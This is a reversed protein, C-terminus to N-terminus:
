PAIRFLLDTGAALDLRVGEQGEWALVAAREEEPLAALHILVHSVGWRRLRVLSEGEPVPHCCIRRLGAYRPAVYGSYGNVLPKWHLTGAYLYGLETQQDGFPLELVARVDGRGALSHYIAPLEAEGPIPFWRLPRPALEVLLVATAALAAAKRLGAPETRRLWADLTRAALWALPFSVFPYFRAPVRMGSLGPVFTMLPLYVILHALLGCALGSFLVGREWPDVAALDFGWNGGWLRRLGLAALGTLLLCGAIRYLGPSGLDKLHGTFAAWTATEGLAYGLVALATLLGLGHRQRNSLPTLPAQRLRRWGSWAGALALATPLFGAFLANERRRWGATWPGAYLNLDAPTVFSVLSVGYAQMERESRALRRTGSAILHPLAVAFLMVMALAGAALLATLSRRSRQRWLDPARNLLLVLLPFQAMFALYIGGTVHLAYFVLFLGARRWGPRALFRDFSWVLLPVWQMVLVQLHDLQDWRFSSFAFACGGFFAAAVGLGCRRLVYWTNFGCLVYTGVFFLNYLAVPNPIFRTLPAALLALGLLHDTTITTWREPFFFPANWFDPMGLRLQHLGWKIMYLSFLTDDARPTLHTGLLRTVPRMYFLSLALFGAAALAHQWLATRPTPRSDLLMRFDASISPM